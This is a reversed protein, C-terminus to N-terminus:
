LAPKRLEARYRHELLQGLALADGRDRRDLVHHRQQELVRDVLGIRGRQEVAVIEGPDVGPQGLQDHGFEGLRDRRGIDALAAPKVVPELRHVLRDGFQAEAMGRSGAPRDREQGVADRLEPAGAQHAAQEHPAHFPRIRRLGVQVEDIGIEALTIEAMQASVFEHGRRQQGVRIMEMRGVGRREAGIDLPKARANARGM